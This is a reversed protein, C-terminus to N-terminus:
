QNSSFCTVSMRFKHTHMATLSSTWLFCPRVLSITCLDEEEEEEEWNKDKIKSATRCLSSQGEGEEVKENVGVM